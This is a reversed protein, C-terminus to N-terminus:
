VKVPQRFKLINKAGDESSVIEIRSIGDSSREVVVEQPKAISHDLKEFIVSIMDDAPDYTIGMIPIWEAEIKDFIGLGEVELEVSNEKLSKSFEDFFAKWENKAICEAM